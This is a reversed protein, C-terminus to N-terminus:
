AGLRGEGDGARAGPATGAAGPGARAVRGGAGLGPPLQARQHDLRL